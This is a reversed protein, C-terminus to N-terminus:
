DSALLLQIPDILMGTVYLRNYIYIIILFRYTDFNVIYLWLGVPSKYSFSFNM